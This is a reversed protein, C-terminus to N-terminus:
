RAQRKLEETRQDRAEQPVLNAEMREHFWEDLALAVRAAERRDGRSDEVTTLIEGEGTRIRVRLEGGGPLRKVLISPVQDAAQREFGMWEIYHHLGNLVEDAEVGSRASFVPGSVSEVPGDGYAWWLVMSIMIAGIISSLVVRRM